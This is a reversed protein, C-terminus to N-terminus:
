SALGEDLVRGKFSVLEQIRSSHPEFVWEHDFLTELRTSLFSSGVVLSYFRNGHERQKNIDSLMDEPLSAMIFDSIILMDAKQYKDHEMVELAHQLAPSVDTGGHFSMKLFDILSAIGMDDSLELTEIGTSFNILYCPRRQERAKTSIFLTVAKAVTEPTGNMSGSTDVCIVMPGQKDAEEVQREEEVEITEQVSQIGQMDFCMLRSEVFKLDFLIATDEDALLAKESPLVHELDRGLKIGIIEERSNIDPLHVQRTQNVRVKEIKESLEIQRMKGLLECLSKVSEDEKLYEAWRHFQEIDQTTLYGKSLDLLLGPDFGLEELHGRLLDMRELILSLDELLKARLMEITSLEWESRIHDMIKQWESLLLRGSVSLDDNKRTSRKGKTEEASVLRKWFSHNSPHNAALCFSTFDDVAKELTARTLDRSELIPAWGSIKRAHSSLPFETGLKRASSAEWESLQEAVYNSVSHSNQLLSPFKHFIDKNAAIAAQELSKIPM